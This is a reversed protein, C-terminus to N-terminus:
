SATALFVLSPTLTIIFLGILRLHSLKLLHNQKRCYGYWAKDHYELKGISNHLSHTNYEFWAKHIFMIVGM